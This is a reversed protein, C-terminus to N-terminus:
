NEKRLLIKIKQVLLNDLSRTHKQDVAIPIENQEAPVEVQISADIAIIYLKTVRISDAFSDPLQNTLRQLHIIKQIELESASTRLDL